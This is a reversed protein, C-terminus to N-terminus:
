TKITQSELHLISLGATIDKGRKLVYQANKDEITKDVKM